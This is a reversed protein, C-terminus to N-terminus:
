RRDGAGNHGARNTVIPHRWLKTDRRVSDNVALLKAPVAETPGGRSFFAGTATWRRGYPPLVHSFIPLRDHQACRLMEATKRLYKFWFCSGLDKAAMFIPVGEGPGRRSIFVGDHAVREGLPSLPPKGNEYTTTPRLIM